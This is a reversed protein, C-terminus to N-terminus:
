AGDPNFGGIEDADAKFLLWRDRLVYLFLDLGIGATVTLDFSWPSAGDPSIRIANRGNFIHGPGESQNLVRSIVQVAPTYPKSNATDAWAKIRGNLPVTEGNASFQISLPSVNFVFVSGNSQPATLAAASARRTARRAVKAKEAGADPLYARLYGGDQGLLIIWDRFFYAIVDGGGAPLDFAYSAPVANPKTVDLRNADCFANGSPVQGPIRPGDTSLPVYKNGPYTYRISYPEASDSNVIITQEPGPRSTVLPNFIFVRAM